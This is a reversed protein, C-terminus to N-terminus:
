THTHVHNTIPQAVLLQNLKMSRSYQDIPCAAMLLSSKHIYSDMYGNSLGNM